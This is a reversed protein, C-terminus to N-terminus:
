RARVSSGSIMNLWSAGTPTFHLRVAPHTALWAQVAPTSHTSSNDVVVHLARGRYGRAVRQLFALFDAGTHRPRCEGIVRGSAVELAAYLSTLGNRRYDHTQRAPLGPRLPLLPQTRSLAQIQTMGALHALGADTVSTDGLLLRQMQTMGALHTLGADTVHTGSLHLWQM